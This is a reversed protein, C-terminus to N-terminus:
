RFPKQRDRLSATWDKLSQIDRLIEGPVPVAADRGRSPDHAEVLDCCKKFGAEFTACDAEDLVTVKRLHRTEIYDRHRHIVGGFVVDELAREWTARLESYIGLAANRYADEDNRDYPGRAGRAEKEMKDIRDRVGSARWPLGETVVGTGEPRRSLTVMKVKTGAQTARDHLDNLFILDHTFVIIQRRDAEVVLREAVKNRWRHDLSSVPDDFVLASEQSATALEALFAALAVCTQEGESLVDHLRAKPNAFFRVQYQPSGFQGGSRVVEVRVNEAALSVIEKQFEDRMKPTIVNDAIDNGLRTIAHTATESLCQAVILLAKRREIEGIILPLLGPVALRDTLEALETQLAKRGEARAADDLQRAYVRLDNEFSALDDLPSESFSPMAARPAGNLSALCTARRLRASALFRIVKKALAPNEISIHRRTQAAAIMNIRKLIIDKLATQYAAEATQASTETDDRIFKEFSMMRERASTDLSQQCLVCVEDQQPPFRRGPYAADEAYRRAAEWLTRWTEAGVGTIPLGGFAREAALRAADRKVKADAAKRKLDDLVQDSFDEGAAQVAAALQRTGMAFLRQQAAAALPNKSLDESLRAHRIREAEAVEGLKELPQLDTWATLRGLFQGVATLPSWTPVEFIPHRRRELHEQEALLQEKVRQCVGALDDPIDLGFPRFAVENKERVHVSACDKDFVSIASLLPDPEGTDVWAIPKQAVGGKTFSITATARGDPGPNFADPMIEGAHRARCARKLIRAYGSKGAGNPGYVVTLGDPEFPLTQRPALKNVGVVNSVAGLRISAGKGPSAPLHRRALPLAEVQVGRAGHEKKCLATIEAVADDDPRGAVVIRRLADRQWAPRQESWDLITELVSKQPVTDAM